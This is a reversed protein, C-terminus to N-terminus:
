LLKMKELLARFRPEGRLPTYEPASALAMLFANREEYGKEFYDMAESYQELALYIEGIWQSAIVERVSREKLELILEQAESKRGARAYAVGLGSVLMQHHDSAIAARLGETIAEEARGALAFIWSRIWHIMIAKPELDLAREILEAAKPSNGTCFHTASALYCVLGSDPEELMTQEAESIALEPRKGMAYLLSRYARAVVLKPELELARSLSAEAGPWDRELLMRVAGMSLHGEPLEPDLELARRALKLAMPYAEDYPKFSYVAMILYCDALGSHPLAYEPDAAIAQHFSIVASQLYARNRREWFYRGKLYLKYAELNDTSRRIPPLMGVLKGKLTEVIASTIEDQIEFLDGEDRDYRKTWTQSGDRTSILNAMVRLRSGAKRVTGELVSEVNLHRGIEALEMKKERCLVASTRSIVRLGPVSGLAHIIEAAMGECFPLQSRDPSLDEFPMVAISALPSAGPAADSARAQRTRRLDRLVEHAEAYRAAPQKLMLRQILQDLGAPLAPSLERPPTAHRHIIADFLDQTTNGFFPQRGTTLEYLVIGFSFLDSRADLTEGRIQEPSMYGATGMAPGSNSLTQEKRLRPGQPAALRPDSPAQGNSKLSDAWHHAVRALGFDLIKVHGARTCFVNAPKIDRHIIGKEHAAALGQAMQIAIDLIRDLPLPQRKGSGSDISKAIVERLTEGELLEMVLFPQGEHQDVLYVTCVNPHNLSSATKAEREFRLLTQPDRAMDEPLFKLAVPRNLKLDEGKFVLGMGGGGLVGLVRYHSVRQGVLSGSKREQVAEPLSNSKRPIPKEQEVPGLLRYGRRAVTEIFKPQGATDGLASRLKMIAANISGDWDVVTDNPWLRRRIDDRSVLGGERDLLLELIQFQQEPLRLSKGNRRLDAAELDLEFPGFRTLKAMSTNQSQNCGM